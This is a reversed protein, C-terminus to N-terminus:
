AAARAGCDGGVHDSILRRQRMLEAMQDAIEENRQAIAEGLATRFAANDGNDRVKLLEAITDMGIGIQRCSAILDIREIESRSYNRRGRGRRVPVILGEEEYYRIARTSLGFMEAVEGIQYLRDDLALINGLKM